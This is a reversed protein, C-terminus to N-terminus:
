PTPSASATAEESAPTPSEVPTALPTPEISASPAPTGVAVNDPIQSDDLFLKGEIQNITEQDLVPNLPESVEQPVSPPVESTLARYINFSIWMLTTILTLIMVSILNPLKSKKM